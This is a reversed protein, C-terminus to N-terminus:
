PPPAWRASSPRGPSKGATAGPSVAPPPANTSRSASKSRIRSHAPLCPRPSVASIPSSPPSPGIERRRSTRSRSPWPTAPNPAKLMSPVRKRTSTPDSPDYPAPRRQHHSRRPRGHYLIVREGPNVRAVPEAYPGFVYQYQENPQRIERVDSMEGGDDGLTPQM